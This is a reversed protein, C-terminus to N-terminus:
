RTHTFIEDLTVTFPRTGTLKFKTSNGKSGIKQIYGLKRFIDLAIKGRQRNNGCAIRDKDQLNQLIFSGDVSEASVNVAAIWLRSIYSNSDNLSGMMITKANGMPKALLQVAFNLSDTKKVYFRYINQGRFNRENETNDFWYVYGDPEAMYPQIIELERDTVSNLMQQAVDLKDFNVVYRREQNSELSMIIGRDMLSRIAYELNMEYHRGSELRIQNESLVNHIGNGILQRLTWKRWEEVSKL